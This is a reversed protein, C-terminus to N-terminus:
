QTLSMDLSHCIDHLIMPRKQSLPKYCLRYEAFSVKLKISGVSQLWGMHWASGMHWILSHHPDNSHTHILTHTHVRCVCVCVYACSPDSDNSSPACLIPYSDNRFARAMLAKLPKWCHCEPHAHTHTRSVCVCVCVCVLSRLWQEFTYMHKMHTM